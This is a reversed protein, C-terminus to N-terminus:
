CDIEKLKKNVRKLKEKTVMIDYAFIEGNKMYKATNEVEFEKILKEFVDASLHVKYLNEDIQWTNNEM